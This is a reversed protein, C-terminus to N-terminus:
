TDALPIVEIGTTPTPQTDASTTAQTSAWPTVQTDGQPTVVMDILAKMKTHHTIKTKAVLQRDDQGDVEQTTTEVDDAITVAPEYALDRVRGYVIGWRCQM